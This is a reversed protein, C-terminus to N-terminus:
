EKGQNKVEIHDIRLSTRGGRVPFVMDLDKVMWIGDFDKVSVVKLIKQLTGDADTQEAGLLRGTEQEIWLTMKEGSQRNIEIKYCSKGLKRGTGVTKADNEWLFSFSLDAWSVGLGDIEGHPDFAGNERKQSFSYEPVGNERIIELEQKEGNKEDELRYIARPVEQSWSLEAELLLHKKVFGNPARRKLSGSMAITGPPLQSRAAALIQPAPPLTEAHISLVAFFSLLTRKM